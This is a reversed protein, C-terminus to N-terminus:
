TAPARAALHLLQVDVSVRGDADALAGFAAAATRSLGRGIAPGRTHLLNTEGGARLDRVLAALDRYRLRLPEIDVVPEGFGARQLLGPAEAPDVMPHVRPSVGGSVAEEAAFLSRRLAGLTDGGPFVAMFQGGPKLARCCQALCGPLDNVGHLAGVSVILDFSAAAFPLRDEDAQVGGAAHAFAHGADLRTVRGAPLSLAGDRCGLDLAHEFRRGEVALRAGIENAMHAHVDAVIAWASVARDRRVRRLARDFPEAVSSKNVTIVM